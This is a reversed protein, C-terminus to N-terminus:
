AALRSGYGVLLVPVRCAREVREAVSGRLIRQIGDRRHTAMAVLNVRAAAAEDLIERVPDGFRVALEVELGALMAAVSTLYVRVQHAAQAAVQDAYALVRGEVTRAEAPPAVHLLRVVAHEALALTAVETLVAESGPSGDLPVLIRHTM